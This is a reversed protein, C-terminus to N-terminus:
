KQKRKTRIYLKKYLEYYLRAAKEWTFQKVRKLGKRKLKRYLKKNSLLELIKNALDESNRPEFFIASNGLIERAIKINAAIVPLGVALAEVYVLGFEEVLSPMVFLDSASYYDNINEVFKKIIVYKEINLETIRSIMKEYEDGRGIILFKINKNKRVVRPIADILTIVDKHKHLIGVFLVLYEDDRVNLERRVRNRAVENFKFYQNDVGHHIIIPSRNCMNMIINKTDRSPVILADARKAITKLLLNDIIAYIKMLLRMESSLFYHVFLVTPIKWIRTLPYIISFATASIFVQIVDYNKLQSLSLFLKVLLLEPRTVLVKIKINKPLDRPPPIYHEPFAYGYIDISRVFRALRATLDYTLRGVGGNLSTIVAIRM